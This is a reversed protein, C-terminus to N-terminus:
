KLFQEVLPKVQNVVDAHVKEKEQNGNIFVIKEGTFKQPLQAYENKVKELFSAKEFKDLKRGEKEMRAISVEVPVNFLLTLDPIPFGHNEKIVHSSLVGQATQYAITSHKYRDCVVVCGQELMPAIVNDVHDERDLVFLELIREKQASPDDSSQALRERLEKGFKSQTPERTLIVTPVKKYTAFIWEALATAQSSKGCGDIGDLVIFLGKGM